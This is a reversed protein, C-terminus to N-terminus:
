AICDVETENDPVLHNLNINFLSLTAPAFKRLPKYLISEEQIKETFLRDGLGTSHIVLIMASLFFAGKFIAFLGGVIRNLWGLAIAKMLKDIGSALLFILVITIVLVAVFAIVSVYKEPIHGALYGAALGSFKVAAMIGLILSLMSALEKVFGNKLGKLLFLLLFGGCIIDFLEM